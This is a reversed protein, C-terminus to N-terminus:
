PCGGGRDAGRGSGQQAAQVFLRGEVRREPGIVPGAAAGLMSLTPDSREVSPFEKHRNILAHARFLFGLRIGLGDDIEGVLLPPLDDVELEDVQNPGPLVERNRNLLQGLAEEALADAKVARANAAERVEM